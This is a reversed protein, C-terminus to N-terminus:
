MEVVYIIYLIYLYIYLIYLIIYIMYYIYIYLIYYLYVYIGVYIYMRVHRYGTDIYMDINILTKGPPPSPPNRGVSGSFKGFDGEEGLNVGM